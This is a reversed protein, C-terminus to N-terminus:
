ALCRPLILGALIQLLIAFGLLLGALMGIGAVFREAEEGAGRWIRLSLLAGAGALALGILCILLVPIAGSRFCGGFTLNAGMQQSGFWGLGAGILAAWPLLLRKAQARRSV